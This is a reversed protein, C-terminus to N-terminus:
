FGRRSWRYPMDKLLTLVRAFRLSPIIRIMGRQICTAGLLYWLRRRDLVTLPNREVEPRRREKASLARWRVSKGVTGLCLQCSALPKDNRLYAVVREFLGDDHIPIGDHQVFNPTNPDDRESLAGTFLPRSCLYFMGNHFTQCYWSHAIQCSRYIQGTLHPNESSDANMKRFYRVPQIYLRTGNDVCRARASEIKARDIRADPYWSISLIDINRFFDDKARHLLAGNTCVQIIDTLGSERVTDIFSLIDRHLLPEGGVFCFRRVHYVKALASVDRRFQDLSASSKALHPSLHSCNSCSFNCHFSLNFELKLSQIRGDAVEVFPM